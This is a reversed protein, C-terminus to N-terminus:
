LDRRVDRVADVATIGEPWRKGVEAAFAKLEALYSEIEEDSIAENVGAPVLRAVITSDRFVDIVEGDKTVREVLDGTHAKLEKIGVQIM